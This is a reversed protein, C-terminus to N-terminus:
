PNVVYIEAHANIEQDSRFKTLADTLKKLFLWVPGIILILFEQLLGVFANSEDQVMEITAFMEYNRIPIRHLIEETVACLGLPIM